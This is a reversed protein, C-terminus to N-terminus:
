RSIALGSTADSSCKDARRSNSGAPAGLQRDELRSLLWAPDWERVWRLLDAAPVPRSLLFGQIERCGLEAVIRLAHNDEIGEAVTTLSLDTALNVSARVIAEASSDHSLRAIFSQDIKLQDVPLRHLHQLSSYGTGFDDIAVSVGLARLRSLVTISTEFDVVMADETIEVHLLEPDVGAERLLMAVDNPLAPDLLDRPTLNVAVPMPYGHDRLLAAAEAARRVVFRSLMGTVGAQALLPVFEAPSVQGHAPHIWRVLAEAGTIEGTSLSVKPQLHIYFDENELAARASLYLDLRRPADSDLEPSYWVVGLQNRKAQYMATDARHMVTASDTGQEPWQAVGVSAGIEFMIGDLEVKAVLSEHIDDLRCTFDGPGDTDRHMLLMAFEDGGLRAVMDTSRTASRLRRGIEILLKDGTEHGLSDNIEKFRDLDVMVVVGSQDQNALSSTLAIEFNLRNPLGTLGDHQAQTELRAVLHDNSMRASLTRALSGFLRLEDSSFDRRMGLRDSVFLVGVRDVEGLVPAALVKTAGLHHLLTRVEPRPDDAALQTVSGDELLGVLLDAIPQADLDDFADDVLARVTSAQEDDNSVLLLGASNTRMIHVLQALGTDVSRAGRENTLARTFSHLQQLNKHRQTLQGGSRLLAGIGVLPVFAYFVMYPDAISASLATVTFTGALAALIQSQGVDAFLNPRFKADVVMIVVPVALLSLLEAALVAGLPVLWEFVTSPLAEGLVTRVIFAALAVEAFFLCSNWTTKVMDSKRIWLMTPASGLLYALALMAPSLYLLGFMMPIGSLSLSHSEKRIEVHLATAEALGFAIVLGFFPLAWDREPTSDFGPTSFLLVAGIAALAAAYLLVRFTPSIRQLSAFPSRTTAAPAAGTSDSM